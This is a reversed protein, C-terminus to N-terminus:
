APLTLTIPRPRRTRVIDGPVPEGRTKLGAGDAQDALNAPGVETSVLVPDLHCDRDAAVLRLRHRGRPM